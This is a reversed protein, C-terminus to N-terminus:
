FNARDLLFVASKKIFMFRMPEDPEPTIYFYNGKLYDSVGFRVKGYVIIALM